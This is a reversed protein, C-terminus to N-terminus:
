AMGFRPPVSRSCTYVMGNFTSTISASSTPVPTANALATALFTQIDSSSQSKPGAPNDWGQGTQGPMNPLLLTMLSSNSMYPDYPANSPLGPVYIQIKNVTTAGVVFTGSGANAAFDTRPLAAPVNSYNILTSGTSQVLDPGRRSPCLGVPLPPRPIGNGVSLWLLNADGTSSLDHLAAADTFPLINYFWGGPQLSVGGQFMTALSSPVMFAPDGIWQSGWGGTPFYGFAEDHALAGMGLQKLNNSCQNRRASELAYFVAPLLLSILVGIVAVVVLLEVLTFGAAGRRFWKKSIRNRAM